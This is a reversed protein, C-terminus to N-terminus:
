AWSNVCSHAVVVTPVKWDLAADRFGNFHILDPTLRDALAGLVDAAKIIDDGAPDQWELMLDTEILSIGRNGKLMDRLGDDPRPGISVLHVEVGAESLARALTVSFIWVGGVADTTMMLRMGSASRM